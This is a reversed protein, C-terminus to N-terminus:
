RPPNTRSPMLYKGAFTSTPIGVSCSAGSAHRRGVIVTGGSHRPDEAAYYTVVPAAIARLGEDLPTVAPRPM